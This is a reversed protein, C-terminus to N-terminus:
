LDKLKNTLEIVTLRTADVELQTVEVVRKFEHFEKTLRKVQSTCDKMEARLLKVETNLGNSSDADTAIVLTCTRTKCVM